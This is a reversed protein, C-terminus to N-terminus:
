NYLLSFLPTQSHIYHFNNKQMYCDFGYIYKLQLYNNPFHKILKDNENVENSIKDSFIKRAESNFFERFYSFSDVETEFRHKVISCNASINKLLRDTENYKYEEKESYQELIDIYSPDNSLKGEIHNEHLRTPKLGPMDQYVMRWELLM